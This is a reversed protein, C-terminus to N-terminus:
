YKIKKKEKKTTYCLSAYSTGPTYYIDFYSVLKWISLIAIM